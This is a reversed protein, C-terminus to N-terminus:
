ALVSSPINVLRNALEETNSLDGSICGEFMPLQHMPQWVPRTMVQHKSTYELFADRENRDKLLIANLWYNSSASRPEQFFEWDTREIYRGYAEATQRKKQLFSPLQELQACALAANLNPMRYNYGIEDHIYEWAHPVKAQTTLHKAQAAFTEDDTVIAGGGGCTVTKNGNFSFVGALGFTGTHKGEFYSGLSEAADEILPISYKGCVKAIANIEVPHGFTHMPVCAAIKKDTSRHICEGQDNIVTQTELFEQLREASLGLTDREVDVFFPDAGQYRIANCTAIFTLSQTIVLDGSSVRAVRLAVHLANTGNVTAIAFKAGTVETMMQEFRNVYEGVSSVYTSDICDLLYKKENGQFKPAHLPIFEDSEAQYLERIFAVFEEFM